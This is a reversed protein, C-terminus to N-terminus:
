IHFHPLNIEFTSILNKEIGKSVGFPIVLLTEIKLTGELALGQKL